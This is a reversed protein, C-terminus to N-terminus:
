SSAEEKPKDMEESVAEPQTEIAVQEPDSEAQPEDSFPEDIVPEQKSLKSKPKVRKVPKRQSLTFTTFDRRYDPSLRKADYEKCFKRMKNTLFVAEQRTKVMADSLLLWKHELCDQLSLRNRPLRKMIKFIFKLAEKSINDYLDHPDYRNYVINLLTSEDCDGSYPSEGSLLLFTLAAVGWIDATETVREQAIVEPPMFDPYGVRPVLVGDQNPIKQSLGFDILKVDLHRRSATVVSGPQINLHAIGIRHLFQLANLVQRIVTAVNDESYRRKYALQRVIHDGYLREFFLYLKGSAFYANYLRAINNHRVERLISYERDKEADAESSVPIIKVVREAKTGVNTCHRVDSFKGKWVSDTFKYVSEPSSKQLKPEETSDDLLDTDDKTERRSSDPTLQEEAQHSKALALQQEEDLQIEGGSQKTVVQISSWSYPSMGFQNMCSVRFRYGTDPKLGKVVACEHLIKVATTWREDGLRKYDVKYFLIDSNGDSKPAEWIILASDSTIQTVVPRGPRNPVDGALLRARSTARGYKNRAVCKYVGGDYPKASLILLTAVGDDTLDIRIRAGDTLLEENRYWTVTPPPPGVVQCKFLIDEGCSFAKDQLKTKFIPPPLEPEGTISAISSRKSPCSSEAPDYIARHKRVGDLWDMEREISAPLEERDVSITRREKMTKVKTSSDGDLIDRVADDLRVGSPLGTDDMDGAARRYGRVRLGYDSDHPTQLQADQQYRAQWDYWTEEDAFEGYAESDPFTIQGTVPDVKPQFGLDSYDGDMLRRLSRLNAVTRVASAKTQQQDRDRYSKLNNTDLKLGTGDTSVNTIWPHNLCEELSLRDTPEVVLLKSIFDKAEKSFKDFVPVFILKGEMIRELIEPESDAQFPTTGSLLTYVLAGVSWIDSATTILENNVSEPSAFDPTGYNMWVENTSPIKRAFGFDILKIENSDKTPFLINSPKIDLHLINRSHIHGLTNLLKKVTAAADNETWNNQDIAHDVLNGGSLLETVIILNKPTEYADHLALINKHSLLRLTELENKFFDKEGDERVTIFKAAFEAGTSKEIVRRVVGHRGRGLEEMVYYYDEINANKFNLDCLTPLSDEVEVRASCFIKGAVNEAVCTYQGADMSLAGDITLSFYDPREHHIRVRSTETLPRWDKNFKITPYPIGDVRCEIKGTGRNLLVVDKLPEIFTPPDAMKLPIVCSASGHENEAVCKYDGIDDWTAAGFELDIQGVPSTYSNYRGGMELKEGKFFWTIEPLPYGKVDACVKCGRSEAAYQDEGSPTLFEPASPTYDIKREVTESRERSTPTGIRIKRFPSMTDRSGSRSSKTRPEERERFLTAPLTPESMGFENKARVRFMYDQEPRLKSVEFHTEPLDETLTNWAHSPPERMEVIYTIPTNKLYSPMRAQQWSLLLRDEAQKTMNPRGAPVRPPVGSTFSDIYSRAPSTLDRDREFEFSPRRIVPAKSRTISAPLTPESIGFPSEARIRFSYDHKPTLGGVNYTPETLGSIMKRWGPGIPERVEVTYTIPAKKAYAPIRAPFWKLTLRDDNVDLLAPTDIPLKPPVSQGFQSDYDYDELPIGTDSQRNLFVPLTPESLGYDNIARVRFAYDWLPNLNRVTHSQGVIGSAVERWDFSNPQRVEIRYYTPSMM